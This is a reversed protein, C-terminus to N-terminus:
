EAVITDVVCTAEDDFDGFNAAGPRAVTPDGVTLDGVELNRRADLDVLGSFEDDDNMSEAVPVPPPAAQPQEPGLEPVAADVELVGEDATPESTAGGEEPWDAPPIAGQQGGGDVVSIDSVSLELPSDDMAPIPSPEHSLSPSEPLMQSAETAPEPVGIPPADAEHLAGEGSHMATGPNLLTHLHAGFAGAAETPLHKRYERSAQEIQVAGVGLQALQTDFLAMKEAWSSM